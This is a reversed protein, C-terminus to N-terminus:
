GPGFPQGVCDRVRAGNIEWQSKKGGMEVKKKGKGKKSEKGFNQIAL